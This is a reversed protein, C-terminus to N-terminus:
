PFWRSRCNAAVSSSWSCRITAASSASAKLEGDRSTMSCPAIALEAIVASRQFGDTARNWHLHHRRERRLLRRLVGLFGDLGEMDAVIAYPLRRRLVKTNLVLRYREPVPLRNFVKRQVQRPDDLAEHRKAIWFPRDCPPPWTGGRRGGLTGSRYKKSEDVHFFLTTITPGM